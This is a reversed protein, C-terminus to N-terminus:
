SKRRRVMFGVTALGALLLAYTGPEPVATVALSAGDFSVQMDLGASNKTSCPVAETSLDWSCFSLKAVGSGIANGAFIGAQGGLMGEMMHAESGVKNFSDNNQTVDLGLGGFQQQNPIFTFGMQEQATTLPERGSPLKADFTTTTLYNRDKGDFNLNDNTDVAFVAWRTGSFETFDFLSGVNPKEPTGLDATDADVYDAFNASGTVSFSWSKAMAQSTLAGLTLGLDKVYTARAEDWVVLFLESAGDNTNISAFANAGCLVAAAAALFKLKM